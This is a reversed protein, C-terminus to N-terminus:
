QVDTDAPILQTSRLHNSAHEAIKPNHPKGITHNCGLFISTEEKAELLRDLLPIPDEATQMYNDRICVDLRLGRYQAGALLDASNTCGGKLFSHGNVLGGRLRTTKLSFLRLERLMEKDITRWGGATRTSRWHVQKMMDIDKKCTQLPAHPQVKCQGKNFKMLNTAAWKEAYRPEESYVCVSGGSHQVTSQIKYKDASEIGKDLSSIFINFPRLGLIRGQPAGSTVNTIVREALRRGVKSDVQGYRVLKVIFICNSIVDFANSYDAYLTHLVRGKGVCGMMENYFATPNTLSMSFEHQSNRTMKEDQMHRSTAELVIQEMVKGPLSIFSVPRYHEPHEEM